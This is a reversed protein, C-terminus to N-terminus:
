KLLKFGWFKRHLNKIDKPIKKTWKLCNWQSISLSLVYMKELNYNTKFNNEPVMGDYDLVPVAVESGVRSYVLGTEMDVAYTINKM